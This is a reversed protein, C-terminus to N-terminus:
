GKKGHIPILWDDYRSFRPFFLFWSASRLWERLSSLNPPIENRKSFCGNVSVMMEHMKASGVFGEGRWKVKTKLPSLSDQLHSNLKDKPPLLKLAELDILASENWYPSEEDGVFNRCIEGIFCWKKLYFGWIRIFPSVKNGPSALSTLPLIGRGEQVTLILIDGERKLKVLLRATPGVLTDVDTKSFHSTEVWHPQQTNVTSKKLPLSSLTQLDDLRSPPPLWSEGMFLNQNGINKWVELLIMPEDCERQGSYENNKCPGFHPLPEKKPSVPPSYARRYETSLLMSQSPGLPSQNKLSLRYVREAGRLEDVIKERLRTKPPVKVNRLVLMRNCIICCGQYSNIWGPIELLRCYEQWLYQPDLRMICDTCTFREPTKGYGPFFFSDSESTSPSLGRMETIKPTVKEPSRREREPDRQIPTESLPRRFTFEPLADTQYEPPPLKPVFQFPNKIEGLDTQLGEEAFHTKGFLTEDRINPFAKSLTTHHRPWASDTIKPTLAKEVKKNIGSRRQSSENTLIANVAMRQPTNPKRECGVFPYLGVKESTTSRTGASRCRSLPTPPCSLVSRLKALLCGQHKLSLEPLALSINEPALGRLTQLDLGAFTSDSYSNLFKCTSRLLSLAEAESM